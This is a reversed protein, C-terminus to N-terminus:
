VCVSERLATDQFVQDCHALAQETEVEGAVEERGGTVCVCVCESVCVCVQERVCESVCVSARVCVRECVSVCV